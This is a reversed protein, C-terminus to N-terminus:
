NQSTKTNKPSSATMYPTSKGQVQGKIPLPQAAFTHPLSAHSATNVITGNSDLTILQSSTAKHLGLKEAYQKIAEGKFQLLRVNLNNIEKNKAEIAANGRQIVSLLEGQEVRYKQNAFPISVVATALIPLYFIWYIISSATSNKEKAHHIM